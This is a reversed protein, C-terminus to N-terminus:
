PTKVAASASPKAASAAAATSKKNVESTLANGGLSTPTKPTAPKGDDYRFEMCDLQCSRMDHGERKLLGIKVVTISRVGVAELSPYYIELPKPHGAKALPKLARMLLAFDTLHQPTWISLTIKFKALEFGLVTTRGGVSGAPKKVDVKQEIDGDVECLGPLTFGGLRVHDWADPDDGWFPLGTSAAAPSTGEINTLDVFTDELSGPASFAKVLASSAALKQFAQAM